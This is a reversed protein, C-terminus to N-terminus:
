KVNSPSICYNENSPNKFPFYKNGSAEHTSPQSGPCYRQAEVQCLWTTRLNRFTDPNLSDKLNQYKRVSAFEAGKWAFSGCSLGAKSEKPDCGKPRFKFNELRPLLTTFRESPSPPTVDRQSPPPSTVRPASVQSPDRSGAPAQRRPHPCPLAEIARILCGLGPHRSEAQLSYWVEGCGRRLHRGAHIRAHSPNEDDGWATSSVHVPTGREYSVGV